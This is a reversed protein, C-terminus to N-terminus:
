RQADVTQAPPLQQIREVLCALDLCAGEEFRGSASRHLGVLHGGVGLERGLDRALARIYTGKSCDITATADCVAHGDVVKHELGTVAFRDIRLSVSKLNLEGGKRAVAYAKQGDVKKASFAPPMQEIEGTWRDAAAQVDGLTLASADTWGDIELEADDSPTTAGLRIEAVYTKDDAQLGAIQKTMRGTCVVLVGTALPDLTGAHGVKIKRFGLHHRLTARIKNVVDFSTWHLPKLVLLIQGEQFDEARKFTMVPLDMCAFSPIAVKDLFQMFDVWCHFCLGGEGRGQEQEREQGHEGDGDEGLGAGDGGDGRHHFVPFGVDHCPDAVAQEGDSTEIAAHGGGTALPVIRLEVNPHRGGGQGAWALVGSGVVDIAIHKDDAAPIAVDRVVVVNQM